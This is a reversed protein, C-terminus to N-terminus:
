EAGIVSHFAIFEADSGSGKSKRGYNGWGMEESKINWEIVANAWNDIHQRM